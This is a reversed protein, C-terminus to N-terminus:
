PNQSELIPSEPIQSEAAGLALVPVSGAARGAFGVIGWSGRQMISGEPGRPGLSLAQLGPAAQRRDWGWTGTKGQAGLTRSPLPDAPEGGVNGQPTHWGWTGLFIHERPPLPERHEEM